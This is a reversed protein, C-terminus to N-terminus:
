IYICMYWSYGRWQRQEFRQRWTDRCIKWKDAWGGASMSRDYHQSLWLHRKRKDRWRSPLKSIGLFFLRLGVPKAPAWARLMTAIHSNASILPPAKNQPGM